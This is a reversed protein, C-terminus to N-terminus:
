KKLFEFRGLKDIVEKPVFAFKEKSEESLFEGWTDLLEMMVEVRDDVIVDVGELEEDTYLERIDYGDCDECCYYDMPSEHRTYPEYDKDQMMEELTEYDGYDLWRKRQEYILGYMKDINLGKEKLVRIEDEYFGKLIEYEFEKGEINKVYFDKTMKKHKTLIQGLNTKKLMYVFTEDSFEKQEYESLEDSNRGYRGYTIEYGRRELEQFWEIYEMTYRDLSIDLEEFNGEFSRLIISKMAEKEKENKTENHIVCETLRSAYLKGKRKKFEDLAYQFINEELGILKVRRNEFHYYRIASSNMNENEEKSIEADVKLFVKKYKETDFIADKESFDYFPFPKLKELVVEEGIKAQKGIQEDGDLFYIAGNKKCKVGIVVCEM